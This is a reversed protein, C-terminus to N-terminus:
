QPLPMFSVTVTTAAEEPVGSAGVGGDEVGAVGEVGSEGGAAPVGAVGM